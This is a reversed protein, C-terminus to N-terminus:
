GPDAIVFPDGLRDATVDANSEPVGLPSYFGAKAELIDPAATFGCSALRWATLASRAAIGSHLPKTMTGFNRRLGSAMSAAIGFAQRCTAADVRHLKLLAALASFLALSGTAHYGRHYHG